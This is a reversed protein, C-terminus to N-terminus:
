VTIHASVHSDFDTICVLTGKWKLFASKNTDKVNGHPAKLLFCYKLDEFLSFASM